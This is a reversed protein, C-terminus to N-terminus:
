DSLVLTAMYLVGFQWHGLPPIGARASGAELTFAFIYFAYMNFFLHMWDKHIFGSTILTYTHERRYVSYPHLMFRGYMNENSFALISWILTIAFIFSAVPAATLYESM